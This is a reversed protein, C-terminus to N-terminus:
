RRCVGNFGKRLVSFAFSGALITMALLLPDCVWAVRCDRRKGKRYPRMATRGFGSFGEAASSASFVSSTMRLRKAGFFRMEKVGLCLSVFSFSWGCLAVFPAIRRAFAMSGGKRPSHNKTHVHAQGSCRRLLPAGLVLFFGRVM